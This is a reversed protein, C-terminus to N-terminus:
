KLLELAVQYVRQVDKPDPRSHQDLGLTTLDLYKYDDKVYGLNTLSNRVCGFHCGEIVLIFPAVALESEIIQQSLVQSLGVMRAEGEEHLRRTVADCLGGIPCSGSCSIVIGKASEIKM